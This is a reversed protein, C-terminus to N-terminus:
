LKASRLEEHFARLGKHQERLKDLYTGWAASEDLGKYLDRMKKLYSCAQRYSERGRSNILGEAYKRYIELAERPRPKEAAEAVELELRDPGFYSLKGGKVAALAEDIEGEDLYVPVLVYAHRERKLFQHLKPRLEEWKGQKSALKRLEKYGELSPRQRFLAEALELVTAADGRSEARKKQWELLRSDNSTRAREAILEEALAAKRHKVLLDALGLLEYDSARRAEAAAEDLRGRELLRALLPLRLGADRCLKLYEPDDLTDGELDLLWGGLGQRAWDGSGKIEERVWNALLRREEATPQEDLVESAQDGLGIGGAGLDALVIEFLARLIGERRARNDPLAELCQGLGTACESGVSSIEGEDDRVEEYRACVAEAVGQYVASAAAYDKQQLFDDGIAKVAALGDAIEDWSGYEGDSSDFAAEAQRRYTEPKVAQRKKSGPLPSRWFRRWTRSGACCRSSSPSSSRRAAGSWPPSSTKL